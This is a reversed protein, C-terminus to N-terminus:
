FPFVSMFNLNQDVSCSNELREKHMAALKARRIVDTDSEAAFM